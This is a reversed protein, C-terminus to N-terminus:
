THENAAATVTWAKSNNRVVKECVMCPYKPLRKPLGPCPHVDGCLLLALTITMNDDSVTRKYKPMWPFQRRTMADTHSLLHYWVEHGHSIACNDFNVAVGYTM